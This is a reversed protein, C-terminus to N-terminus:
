FYKQMIWHWRKYKFWQAKIAEYKFSFNELTLINIDMDNLQKSTRIPCTKCAILM